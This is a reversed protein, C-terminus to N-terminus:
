VLVGSGVPKPAFQHSLLYYPCGIFSAFNKHKNKLTNVDLVSSWGIDKSVIFTLKGYLMMM